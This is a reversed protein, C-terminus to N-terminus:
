FKFTVNLGLERVAPYAGSQYGQINGASLGAEPDTHPSKKYLIALNRAMIGIDIGQFGKGSFMSSPLSYSIALQRLKIYTADYVHMANPANKWGAYNNYDGVFGNVTNETGDSTYNGDADLLYAGDADTSAMVGGISLGGGNAISERVEVGDANTGAQDAYIGTGYGYWTDLSFFDGGWQVDILASATLNKYTFTNTWGGTWDPMINGITQTSATKGYVMGGRSASPHNVVIKEGDHYVFDTGKISGYSEGITAEVTVGGQFSGLQYTELNGTLELVENRNRAWNIRTDWSFDGSQLVNAYLQLEIGQNQVKGANVYQFYTGSSSSPRVALIQNDTTAQYLTIDLGLKNNFFKNEFGIELSTTNEPLLNSNYGTNPASALTSSGFATGMSYINQLRQMPADNGVQAYNLRLKGFDMGSIDFLESYILSATAAPYFFSNNDVPLTSSVDYRASLDLYLFRDYALTARGLYGDVARAADTESAAEPTNVSNSFSYVGPVVLGGNTQGDTINVASRRLNTGVMGFLNLKDNLDKDFNLFLDYNREFFTKTYKSYKAVDVSQSGIREERLESYNDNTVRGMVNLWDNIEYNLVMNGIFRDRSDTSYNTNRMWYPNDFYHPDARTAEPSSFGYANWSLNNGNLEYAAKQAEMDVSVDYWQRFSQNVNNNDYGTGFRGTGQNQVYQMSSSFNLKNSLEYSVNLSANNKRLESNPLIGNAFMDSVSFRYSGKDSAGDLSVANTTMVSTEYFTTPNNSSGQFPQPQLYTSLEPHISEWTLLEDVSSFPAGYSADDGMPNALADDVGDGDLDINEIYGNTVIGNFSTDPGYFKGYGAGYENQYTPMTNKNIQGITTNHTVTVGIGKKGKTGKKTTILIVGNAARAGYLASAAAGKLVNISAIDQPNIDMAANGYDFGGRGTQQNSGNTIDNNIPIGDVVYLPQNNGDISSYGRIIVNASGGMTGSNKIQAGAVQGSLSSMFNVDKMTALNDGDITQTAYGLSKKDRSIGLATVVVEDMIIGETMTVNISSKGQIAIEQKKYGVFSFVLTGNADSEISYKGEGNTVTGSSTGKVKVSVGPLGSGGDDSVLGSINQSQGYMLTCTGIMLITILKRM